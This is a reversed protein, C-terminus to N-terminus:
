GVILSGRDIQVFPFSQEILEPSLPPYKMREGGDPQMSVLHMVDLVIPTYPLGAHYLRMTTLFKTFGGTGERSFIDFLALGHPGLATRERLLKGLELVGNKSLYIRYLEEESLGALERLTAVDEVYSAYIDGSWPPGVRGAAYASRAMSETVGENLALLTFIRRLNGPVTSYFGARTKRVQFAGETDTKRMVRTPSIAHVMEHTVTEVATQSLSGKELSEADIPIRIMNDDPNFCGLQSPMEPVSTRTTAAALVFAEVPGYLQLAFNRQVSPALERDLAYGVVADAANQAQGLVAGYAILEAGAAREERLLREFVAMRHQLADGTTEDDARAADALEAIHERSIGFSRFIDYIHRRELEEGDATESSHAYQWAREYSDFRASDLKRLHAVWDCAFGVPFKHTGPELLERGGFQLAIRPRLRRELTAETGQTPREHEM